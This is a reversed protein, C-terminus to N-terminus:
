LCGKATGQEEEEEDGEARLTLVLRHERIAKGLIDLQRLLLDNLSMTEPDEAVPRDERMYPKSRNGREDFERRAQERAKEFQEPGTM